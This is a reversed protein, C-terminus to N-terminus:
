KVETVTADAAFYAIKVQHYRLYPYENAFPTQKITLPAAATADNPDRIVEFM